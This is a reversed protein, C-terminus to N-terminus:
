DQKMLPISDALEYQIIAQIKNEIKYYRAVKIAPLVEQFKPLYLDRLALRGNELAMSDKLLKEAMEDSMSQYNRAYEVILTRIKENHQALANQFDEYVPWFAKAEKETLEMNAAVLLKRDAQIKDKLFQMNDAPKDKKEEACVPASVLAFVLIWATLVATFVMNQKM